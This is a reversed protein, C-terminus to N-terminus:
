KKFERMELTNAQVDARSDYQPIAMLIRTPCTITAYEVRRPPGFRKSRRERVRKQEIMALIFPFSGDCARQRDSCGMLRFLHAM